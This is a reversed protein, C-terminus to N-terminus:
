GASLEAIKQYFLEPFLVFRYMGYRQLVCADPALVTGFIRNFSKVTSGSM